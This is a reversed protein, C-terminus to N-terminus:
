LEIFNLSLPKYITKNDQITYFEPEPTNIYCQATKLSHTKPDLYTVNVVFDRVANLFPQMEDQFTYRLGIYIKVKRNVIDIVTNGAANRGSDESVLTEYGVKLDKVLESFDTNNIKFFAM